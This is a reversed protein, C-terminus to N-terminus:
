RLFNHDDSLQVAIQRQGAVPQVAALNVLARKPNRVFFVTLSQGRRQVLEPATDIPQCVVIFNRVKENVVKMINKIKQGPFRFIEPRM